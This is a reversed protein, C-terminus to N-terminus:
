LGEEILYYEKIHHTHVHIPSRCVRAGIRYGQKRLDYIRASYRGIDNDWFVRQCAGDYVRMLEYVARTSDNM